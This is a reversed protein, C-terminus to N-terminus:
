CGFLLLLTLESPGKFSAKGHRGPPIFSNTKKGRKAHAPQIEHYSTISAKQFSICGELSIQIHGGERLGLDAVLLIGLCFFDLDSLLTLTNQLLTVPWGQLLTYTKKKKIKRGGQDVCELGPGSIGPAYASNPGYTM